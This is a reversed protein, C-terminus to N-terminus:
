AGIRDALLKGLEDRGKGTKLEKERQVAKARSTFSEKHVLDFPRYPRTAKSYGANHESLRREPNGTSGTYLHGNRKSRLVYVFYM